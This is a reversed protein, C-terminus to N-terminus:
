LGVSRMVWRQEYPENHAAACLGGQPTGTFTARSAGADTLLGSALFARVLALVRNDSIRVAVRDMLARHDIEDFCATIDAEFVWEYNRTPSGLYHIEHSRILLV